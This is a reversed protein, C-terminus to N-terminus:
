TAQSPQRPSFASRSHRPRRAIRVGTSVCRPWTENCLVGEDCALHRDVAALDRASGQASYCESHAIFASAPDRRTAFKHSAFKRWGTPPITRARTCDSDLLRDGAYLGSGSFSHRCRCSVGAVWDKGLAPSYASREWSISCDRELLQSAWAQSSNYVHRIGSPM